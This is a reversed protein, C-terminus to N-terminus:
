LALSCFIWCFLCFFCAQQFRSMRIKYKVWLIIWSMEYITVPPDSAIFDCISLWYWWLVMLGCVVTYVLCHEIITRIRLLSVAECETYLSLMYLVIHLGGVHLSNGRSWDARIKGCLVDISGSLMSLVVHTLFPSYVDRLYLTWLEDSWGLMIYQVYVCSCSFM